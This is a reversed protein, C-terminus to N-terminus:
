PLITEGGVCWSRFKDVQVEGDKLIFVSQMHMKAGTDPNRWSDNFGSVVLDPDAPDGKIMLHDPDGSLEYGTSTYAYAKAIGTLMNGHGQHERINLTIYFIMDDGTCPDTVPFFPNDAPFELEISYEVPQDAAAPAAVLGVLIAITALLTLSRRM